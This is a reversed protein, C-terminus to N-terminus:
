FNRRSKLTYERSTGLLALGEDEEMSFETGPWKELTKGRNKLARAISAKTKSNGVGQVWFYRINKINSNERNWLGWMVDSLARLKPLDNLSPVQNWINEATTKPSSVYQQFIAIKKETHSKAYTLLNIISVVRSPISQLNLALAQSVISRAM